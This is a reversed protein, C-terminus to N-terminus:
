IEEDTPECHVTVFTSDGFRKRLSEEVETCIDHAQTVTLDPAVDIHMDIAIDKGIRRTRIQHPNLVGEIELSITKIEQEINDGLSTELLEKLSSKGVSIAAVLIMVSVIVSAIPDLIVWKGGLLIAATVGAAVGISSLADSRHHWANAVIAQNDTEQGVTRTRRFLWEKAVISLLAAGVALWGPTAIQAGHIIDNITKGGEWLLKLGVFALILAIGLASLTEIKGHGYKHDGDPPKDAMRLGVILAIDTISDSLSHVGDAVAAASRAILGASVKIVVLILNVVLGIVTIKIAKKSRTNITDESM